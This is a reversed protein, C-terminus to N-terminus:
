PSNLGIERLFGAAESRIEARESVSMRNLSKCIVAMRPNNKFRAEHRDVFDWYLFNFPCAKEGTRRKVDYPCGECYDSMKSIYNGSAAYPKSAMLGGDAHLAMGHTNPLEVWEYADAYVLLYWENVQAPSLGALLAFNGTIMLRQIHHAYAYRRTQGIAEAMCRMPTKGTWYFEPLPHHADLANMEAYGPMKLWYIGRVYERWGIIQRIFGEVANLPARGAKWEAEARRCVDLPDLLGCNIYVSLLSHWMWPEGRAMADQWDGFGPLIEAIFHDRAAEAGARTTAFVWPELDGFHDPVREAVLAMVERTLADAEPLFRPPTVMSKPLRKRNEADYNWQGGEPQDGEMLLGTKRRVERYFYEMRLQKRGKAWAEFETLPVIFRTDDRLEVPVPLLTGWQEMDQLLRWEGPKTVVLRDLGPVEELASAAEARLSGQNAPDDLRIYRVRYGSVTLEEAFHRMAAFLFAIKKKHHRVYTAEERVEAILIVDCSKDADRLSSLDPSLQDGLVLRLTGM